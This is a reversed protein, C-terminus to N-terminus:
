TPSFLVQYIPSHSTSRQPQLAQVVAAFPADQHEFAALTTTRARALLARFSPDGAVDTRLALTNMFLGILPEAERPRNAVPSGVVIDDMGSHRGLLIQFLALLGMFLTAREQRCLAEFRTVTEAPVLVAATGGRSTPESPRSHDLPLQLLPPCGALAERWFSLLCAMVDDTLREREWVACDTYQVPLTALTIDRGAAFDDYLTAIEHRLIRKSWGDYAVHHVVLLLVHVEPSTRVLVARVPPERSLDFPRRAEATALESLVGAPRNALDCERWALEFDALVLQVLGRGDFRYVTRLAEHRDLLARFARQLAPVELRGTMRLALTAVYASPDAEYQALYWM